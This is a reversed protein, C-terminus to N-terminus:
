FSSKHETSADKEVTVWCEGSGPVVCIQKTAPDQWKGAVLVQTKINGPLACGSVLVIGALMIGVCAGILNSMRNKM